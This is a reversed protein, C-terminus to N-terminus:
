ALDLGIRLKHTDNLDGIFRRQPEPSLKVLLPTAMIKEQEAVEPKEMVDIIKLTHKADKLAQKINRQAALASKSPGAIYLILSLPKKM